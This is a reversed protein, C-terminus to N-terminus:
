EFTAAKPEVRRALTRAAWSRLRCNSSRASVGTAVTTPLVHSRCTRSASLIEASELRSIRFSVIANKFFRTASTIKSASCKKSPYKELGSNASAQRLATSAAPASRIQLFVWRLLARRRLNGRRRAEKLVRNYREPNRPQFRGLDQAGRACAPGM